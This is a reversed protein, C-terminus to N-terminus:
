AYPLIITGFRIYWCFKGNENQSIIELTGPELM